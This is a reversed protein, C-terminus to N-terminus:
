NGDEYHVTTLYALILSWVECHNLICTYVGSEVITLFVLLLSLVLIKNKVACHNLVSPNFVM